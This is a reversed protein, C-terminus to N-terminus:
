ANLSRLEYTPAVSLVGFAVLLHLLSYSGKIVLVIRVTVVFPPTLTMGRNRIPAQPVRIPSPRYKRAEIDSHM